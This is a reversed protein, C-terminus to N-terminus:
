SLMKIVEKALDIDTAFNNTKGRYDTLSEALRYLNKDALPNYCSKETNIYVIKNNELNKVFGSCGRKSGNIIINKLHFELGEPKIKLLNNKTKVSLLM